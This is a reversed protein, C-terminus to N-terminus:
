DHWLGSERAADRTVSEAEDTYEVLLTCAPDTPLRYGTEPTTIVEEGERRFGTPVRNPTIWAWLPGDGMDVRMSRFGHGFSGQDEVHAGCAAGFAVAFEDVAVDGYVRLARREVEDVLGALFEDFTTAVGTDDEMETDVYTISPEGAPGGSRYDFCLDWHGDGDFSVLLDPDAPVWMEAEAGEDQFWTPSTITPFSTGIGDIREHPLEPWTARLYGGNQENLLQLYSAPLTVGLQREAQDVVERQLPPHVYDLFAPVAWLDTM